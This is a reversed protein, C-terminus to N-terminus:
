SAGTRNGNGAAGSTARQLQERPNGALARRVLGARREAERAQVDFHAAAPGRMGRELRRLLSAREELARLAAWRASEFTDQQGELLSQESLSHGVTCKFNPVGGDDREVLVGGCDPCSYVAKGDLEGGPEPLSQDRTSARQVERRHEAMLGVLVQAIQAARVRHDPEVHQLANRPMSPTLADDPDQVVVAGGAQKIVALGASGDDLAGSLLVGVVRAGYSRAASRFLPDIAPRHRNEKAGQIVRVHEPYVLLHQDPPAVYIHGPRITQGDVAHVAPLPGWQTLLQPLVSEGRPSVHIVVFITAAFDHPLSGVIARLPQLAGASGGVVVVDRGEM